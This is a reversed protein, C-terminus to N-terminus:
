YKKSQAEILHLSVMKLEMEIMKMVMMHMDLAEEEFIGLKKMSMPMELPLLFQEEDEREGKMMLVMQIM